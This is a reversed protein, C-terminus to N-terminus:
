DNKDTCKWGTIYWDVKRNKINTKPLTGCYFSKLTYKQNKDFQFVIFINIYEYTYSFRNRKCNLAFTSKPWKSSAQWKVAPTLALLYFLFTSVSLSLFLYLSPLSYISFLSALTGLPIYILLIDCRRFMGKCCVTWGMSWKWKRKM